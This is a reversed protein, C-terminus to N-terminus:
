LTKFIMEFSMDFSVAAGSYANNVLVDLQNKEDKAIREFLEEVEKDNSHDCYVAIGKGGRSSIESFIVKKLM